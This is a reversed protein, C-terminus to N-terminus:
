SKARLEVFKTIIKRGLEHKMLGIVKLIKRQYRGTQNMIQLTLDLKLM